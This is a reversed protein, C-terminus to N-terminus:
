GGIDRTQHMTTANGDHPAHPAECVRNRGQRKARYLARDADAISASLSGSDGNAETTGLSLTVPVQATGEKVPEAAISARLREAISLTEGRRAGPLLILFEEGGWRVAIDQPRMVRRLRAAIDVIVADGVDHGYTDNISKFHDIDGMLLGITDSSDRKRELRELARQAGHRNALDTLQDTEAMRRLANSARESAMAIYGFYVLISAIRDAVMSVYGSAKLQIAGTSVFVSLGSGLLIVAYAGFAFAVVYPSFLRDRSPRLIEWVTLISTMASVLFLVTLAHRAGGEISAVLLYLLPALGILVTLIKWSVRRSYFLRVGSWSCALSAQFLSFTVGSLAWSAEGRDPFQQLLMSGLASAVLAGLWHRLYRERPQSLVVALFVVLFASRSLTATIIAEEMTGM